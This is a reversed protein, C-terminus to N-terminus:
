DCSAADFTATLHGDPLEDGQMDGELSGSVRADSVADITVTGDVLSWYPGLPDALKPSLDALGCTDDITGDPDLQSLAEAYPSDPVSYVYAVADETLTYEGARFMDDALPFAELYHAGEHYLADSADLWDEMAAAYSACTNGSAEVEAVAAEVDARKGCVDAINSLTVGYADGNM